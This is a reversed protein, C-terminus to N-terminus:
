RIYRSRRYITHRRCVIPVGVSYSCPPQLTLLVHKTSEHFNAKTQICDGESLQQLTTAYYM